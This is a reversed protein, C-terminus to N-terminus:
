APMLLLFKKGSGQYALSIARGHYVEVDSQRSQAETIVGLEVLQDLLWRWGMNSGVKPTELPYSGTDSFGGEKEAKFVTVRFFQPWWAYAVNDGIM